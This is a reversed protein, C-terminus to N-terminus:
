PGRYEGPQSFGPALSIRKLEARDGVLFPHHEAHRLYCILLGIPAYRKAPHYAPTPQAEAINTIMESNSCRENLYMSILQPYMLPSKDGGPQIAQELRRSLDRSIFATVLLRVGFKETTPQSM